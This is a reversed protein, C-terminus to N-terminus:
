TLVKVGGRSKGLIMLARELIECQVVDGQCLQLFASLLCWACGLLNWSSVGLVFAPFLLVCEGYKLNYRM